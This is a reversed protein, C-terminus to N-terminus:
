LAILDIHEVWVFCLCAVRLASGRHAHGCKTYAAHPYLPGRRASANLTICALGSAIRVARLLLASVAEGLLGGGWVGVWGRWVRFPISGAVCVCVCVCVCVQQGPVVVSVDPDSSTSAVLKKKRGTKPESPAAVIQIDDDDDSAPTKHMKAPPEDDDSSDSIVYVEAPRKAAAAQSADSM